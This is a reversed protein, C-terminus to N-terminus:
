DTEINMKLQIEAYEKNKIWTDLSYWEIYIM